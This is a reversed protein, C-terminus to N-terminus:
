KMVIKKGNQIYVGKKTPQGNLKRGDLSYWADAHDTLDSPDTHCIGTQTGEGTNMVFRRATAGSNAPVKFHARFCKLTRPNQSYGLQSNSGLMIIEDLNGENDGTAGSAVISFPSFQGEFTVKNDKSTVSVPETASIFVGNFVPNEIIADAYEWKVIYPVGADITTADKFYLNLTNNEEDFRTNYKKNAGTGTAETTNLRKVTSRELPTGEISKLSFPLCLTNWNGDRLLKRGDLKVTYPKGNNVLSALTASNDADDALTVDVVDKIFFYLRIDVSGTPTFTYTKTSADIYTTVDNNVITMTCGRNLGPKVMLTLDYSTNWFAESGDNVKALTETGDGTYSHGANDALTFTSPTNGDVANVTVYVKHTTIESFTVTVAMDHATLDIPATYLTTGGFTHAMEGTGESRLTRTYSGSFSYGSAPTVTLTYQGPFIKDFSIVCGMEDTLTVTGGANASVTASATAEAWKAYLTFSHDVATAFDYAETCGADTYWGEIGYVKGDDDAYYQMAPVSVVNGTTLTQADIDTGHGGTDFTVVNDTRPVWKAYITMNDSLATSFLFVTTCAADSYWEDFWWGQATPYGPFTLANAVGSYVTQAAPATGHGQMDFTATCQWHIKTNKSIANEGKYVMSEWRSKPGAYYLDGMNSGLFADKDIEVVSYPLTIEKIPCGLFAAEEITTVNGSFTVNAFFSNVVNM